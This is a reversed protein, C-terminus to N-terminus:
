FKKSVSVKVTRGKNPDNSLYERYRRDFLNDVSLHVNIDELLGSEQSAWSAYLGHVDIAPTADRGSSTVREQEAIFRSKWGMKLGYEPLKGGITFNGEDPAVTNIYGDTIDNKGRIATYSATAFLYDSNYAAEAEIGYIKVKGTNTYQPYARRQREIYDDIKNYFGTVKTQLVDEGFILGRNAVSFGLEYNDSTEKKLDLSYNPVGTSFDSSYIEDLTPFRETHAYSGFVAFMDNIKYHAALKPSLATHQAQNSERLNDGELKQFDVRIGPILTLKENWIFENQAFLGTQVDTGEPHFGLANDTGTERMQYATQVGVTLYNEFNDGSFDFTNSAKAEFTSYGYSSDQFLSTSPQTRIVGDSDRADSQDNLSSSYSLSIDFDLLPNNSAPNKYALIATHDTVKRDITGFGTSTTTQAYTQDDEDSRWQQYSAKISQEKNDGFRYTGKVLGSITSFKSGDVSGGDIEQHDFNSGVSYNNARRFNFAGLLELNEMPKYAAIVSNLLGENNSDYGAKLRISFDEDADLFDSADKTTMSIVGGLAGAGYLTSSAPGRLVEVQKYLEPDSFMSGMRYQEYFKTAGDVNVIIRGEDGAAEPAGIGRINFTEGLVRESGSATVGPMLEFADGMTTMQQQDMDEQTVVSVAQPTDIALKEEGAGIILRDLPTANETQAQVQSLTSVAMTSSAAVCLLVSGYKSLYSM